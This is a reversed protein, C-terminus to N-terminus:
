QYGKALRMTIVRIFFTRMEQGPLRISPSTTVAAWLGRGLDVFRGVAFM